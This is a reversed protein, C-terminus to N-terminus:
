SGDNASGGTGSEVAKVAADAAGALQIVAEIAQQMEAASAGKRAAEALKAHANGIARFPKTTADQANYAALAAFLKDQAARVDATSSSPDNAVASAQTQATMLAKGLATRDYLALRDDAAGLLRTAEQVLPDSAIVVRKLAAARRQAFYLSGADAMFAAVPALRSATDGGQAGALKRVAGDLSGLSTGLATVSQRFAAQDDSPDAALLVLNGAYDTLAGGLHVIHDFDPFSEVGKGGREVLTCGAAPAVQGGSAAIGSGDMELQLACASAIRLDVKRAALDARIRAEEDAAVKALRVTQQAATAQTLTGYESVSERFAPNVCGALALAATGIATAFRRRQAPRAADTGREM